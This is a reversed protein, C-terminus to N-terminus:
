PATSRVLRVYNQTATSMNTGVASGDGFNLKLYVGPYGSLESASHFSRDTPTNPFTSQHIKAADTNCFAYDMPIASCYYMISKLEDLRAMRWGEADVGEYSIAQYSNLMSPTGDCSSSAQNWTQGITCRKWQLGTFADLVLENNAGQYRYRTVAQVARSPLSEVGGKVATVIFYYTPGAGLNSITLPSTVNRLWAANAYISYNQPTQGPETSYYVHYSDAGTAPWTLTVENQSGTIAVNAPAAVAPAPNAGGSGGGCASLFLASLAAVAANRM